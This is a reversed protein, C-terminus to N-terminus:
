LVVQKSFKKESYFQILGEAIISDNLTSITEMLIQFCYAAHHCLKEDNIYNLVFKLAEM